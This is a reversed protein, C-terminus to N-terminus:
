ITQTRRLLEGIHDGFVHQMCRQYTAGMTVYCYMGFSTIFSTALQNPDKM